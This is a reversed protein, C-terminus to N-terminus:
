LGLGFGVAESLESGRVPSLQNGGEHWASHQGGLANKESYM